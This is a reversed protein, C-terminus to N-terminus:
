SWQMTTAGVWSRFGWRSDVYWALVGCGHFQGLQDLLASVAVNFDGDKGGVLQAVVRGHDVAGATARNVDDGAAGPGASLKGSIATGKKMNAPSNIFAPPM